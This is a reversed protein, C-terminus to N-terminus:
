KAKNKTRLAKIKAIISDVTEGEFLQAREATYDGSGARFKNLFKRTDIVDETQSPQRKKM